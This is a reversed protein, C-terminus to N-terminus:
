HSYIIITFDDPATNIRDFYFYVMNGSPVTANTFNSSGFKTAVTNSTINSSPLIETSSSGTIDQGYYVDLNVDGSGSMIVFISDITAGEPYYNFSYNFNTSRATIVTGDLSRTHLESDNGWYATDNNITMVQGSTGDKTPLAYLDAINVRGMLNIRNSGVLGIDYGNIFTNLSDSSYNSTGFWMWDNFSSGKGSKYGLATNRSATANELAHNGFGMNSGTSGTNYGAVYGFYCNNIGTSGSVANVNITQKTTDLHIMPFKNYWYIDGYSSLRKSTDTLYTYKGSQSFYNTGSGGSGWYTNGHSDTKLVDLSDGDTLPLWYANNIMTRGVLHNRYTGTGMYGSFPISTSDTGTGWFYWNSLTNYPLLSNGVVLNDSGTNKYVSEWGIVTNNGGLCSDLVNTGIAINSMGTNYNQRHDGMRLNKNNLDYFIVNKNHIYYGNNSNPLYNSASPLLTDGHITWYNTGGTATVWIASDGSAAMALVKNASGKHLPLSYDKLHLKNGVYLSGNVRLRESNKKFQGFIGTNTDGSVSWSNIFLASDLINDYGASGGIGICSIGTNEYLTNAGFATTRLVTNDGGVAGWQAFAGVITSYDINNSDCEAGAANGIITSNIASGYNYPNGAEDGIITSYTTNTLKEGSNLGIFTNHTSTAKKGANEGIITNHKTYRIFDTNHIYFSSDTNVYNTSTTPYLKNGLQSWYTTNVSEVGFSTIAYSVHTNGEYVFHVHKNNVAESVYVKVIIRDTSKLTDSGSYTYNTIIETVTNNSFSASQADFILTETNPLATQRKYVKFHFHANSGNTYGYAHFQWLGAPISSIAPVSPMTIYGDVLYDVGGTVCTIDEDVETGSNPIRKFGEYPIIDSASHHFWYLQGTTQGQAGTAGTPGTAGTLGTTGQIGQIGQIGQPGTAGQIGQIGQSGTPGQAGTLGTPGTAGKEGTPGTPGTAGVAGTSWYLKGASNTALVSGAVTTDALPFHYNSVTLGSVVVPKLFTFAKKSTNYLISDINILQTVWENGWKQKITRGNIVYTQSFLQVSILIFIITLIIKKM